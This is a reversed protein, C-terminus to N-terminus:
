LKFQFEVAARIMASVNVPTSVCDEIGHGHKEFVDAGDGLQEAFFTKLRFAIPRLQVRCSVKSHKEGIKWFMVKFQDEDSNGEERSIRFKPAGIGFKSGCLARVIAAPIAPQGANQM